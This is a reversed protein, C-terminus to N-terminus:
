FRVLWVWAESGKLCGWFGEEYGKDETKQLEEAHKKEKVWLKDIEAAMGKLQNTNEELIIGQKEVQSELAQNAKQVAQINSDYAM